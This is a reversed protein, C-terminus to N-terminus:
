LPQKTFFILWNFLLYHPDIEVVSVARWGTERRGISYRSLSVYNSLSHSLYCLPSGHHRGRKKGREAPHSMGRMGPGEGALPSPLLSAAQLCYAPWRGVIKM